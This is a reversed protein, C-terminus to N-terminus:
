GSPLELRPATREWGRRSSGSLERLAVRPLRELPNLSHALSLEPRPDLGAAGRVLGLGYHYEWNDPDLDVARQM